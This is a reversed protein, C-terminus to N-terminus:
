ETPNCHRDRLTYNGTENIKINLRIIYKYEDKEAKYECEYIPYAIDERIICDKIISVNWTNNWKIIEHISNTVNSADVNDIRTTNPIIERCHMEWQISKFFGSDDSVHEQTCGLILVIGIIIYAKNMKLTSAQRKEM